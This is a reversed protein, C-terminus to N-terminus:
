FGSHIDFREASLIVGQASTHAFELIFKLTKLPSRVGVM